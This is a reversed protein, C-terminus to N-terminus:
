DYLSEKYSISPVKKPANPDHLWCKSYHSADIEFFDPEKKVCINMAHPCRTAYACGDPPNFLDPPSGEIPLLKSQSDRATSPMASQLGVNYPHSPRSFIEEMNGHEVIQGGYMVAVRDAMKSVIGLDHTILILGMRNRKQMRSILNLIQAQITVDLATTPEDAILLDPECGIAMAIMARQLMGGSFEHPYQKARIHPQPIQVLNLLEIAEQLAEKSTLGKHIELPEAIQKGITMTPNLASMPDQFIMGIRSGRIENNTLQGDKILVTSELVADGGTLKGPPMPILGLLSQVAVSKGCGSEGVIALTEGPLISFDIGRVAKVVGGYTDFQVELRQVELLTAQKKTM